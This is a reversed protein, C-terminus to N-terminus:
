EGEIEEVGIEISPGKGDIREIFTPKVVVHEVEQRVKGVIRDLMFNLKNYDGDTMCKLIIGALMHDVAPMMDNQYILMLEQRSKNLYEVMKLRIDKGKVDDGFRIVDQIDKLKPM